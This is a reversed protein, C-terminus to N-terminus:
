SSSLSSFRDFMNNMNTVKNTNCKSIDPLSSLSSCGSFMNSINTVKNIGKLKIELKNNKYNTINYKEEIEYEKNDILMKCINKNNEVFESGFIRVDDDDENEMNINYVINIESIDEKLM